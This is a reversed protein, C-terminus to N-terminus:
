KDNKTALKELDSLTEQFETLIKQSSAEPPSNTSKIFEIADAIEVKTAQLLQLDEWDKSTQDRRISFASAKMKILDTRDILSARIAKWKKIEKARQFIGPPLSVSSAQDNLWKSSLGFKEGVEAILEIIENSQIPFVSDVDYTFLQRHYGHLQIAYAGCIVIEINLKKQLLLLDLENLAASLSDMTNNYYWPPRM